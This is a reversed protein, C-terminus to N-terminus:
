FLALRPNRTPGYQLLPWLRVLLSHETQGAICIGFMAFHQLSTGIGAEPFSRPLM